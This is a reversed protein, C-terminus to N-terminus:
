KLNRIKIVKAPNGGVIAYEPVDKTVVAGAAIISGCGITVGPLIIVHSGIWVDDCITVPEQPSLGQEIMPIDTRSFIHNRTWVTVNPGMMVNNGITVQGDLFANIGIGSNNGIIIDRGSLFYAGHEINVNTGCQKFLIRGIMYRINKALEGGFAYSVPLHKAFGYYFICFIKRIIANM